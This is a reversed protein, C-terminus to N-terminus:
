WGQSGFECIWTVVVLSKVHSSLCALCSVDLRSLSEVYPLLEVLRSSLVLVQLVVVPAVLKLGVKEFRLWATPKVLVLVLQAYVLM